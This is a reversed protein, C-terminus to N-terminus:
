AVPYFKQRATADAVVATADTFKKGDLYVEVHVPASAEPESPKDEQRWVTAPERGSRIARATYTKGGGDFIRRTVEVVVLVEAYLFGPPHQDEVLSVKTVPEIGYFPDLVLHDGVALEKMFTAHPYFGRKDLAKTEDSM